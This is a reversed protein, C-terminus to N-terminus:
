PQAQEIKNIVKSPGCATFDEDESQVSGVYKGEVFWRGGANDPIYDINVKATHLNEAVVGDFRACKIDPNTPVNGGSGILVRLLTATAAFTIAFAMFTKSPNNNTFIIKPSNNM